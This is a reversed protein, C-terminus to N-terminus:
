SLMEQDPEWGLLPYARLLRANGSEGIPARAQEGIRQLLRRLTRGRGWAIARAQRQGLVALRSPEIGPEQPLAAFGALALGLASALTEREATALSRDRLELGLAHVLVPSFALQQAWYSQARPSGGRLEKLMQEVRAAWTM